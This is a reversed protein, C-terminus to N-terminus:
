FRPTTAAAAPEGGALLAIAPEAAHCKEICRFACCLVPRQDDGGGKDLGCVVWLAGGDSKM